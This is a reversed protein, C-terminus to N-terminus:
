VTETVVVSVFAFVADAVVVIVIEGSASVTEILPGVVPVVPVGIVNVAVPVPPVVGYVNAHVAVPPDGAEPVPALKVAVYLVAPGNETDTVTVSPFAFVAVALWEIVMDEVPRVTSKVDAGPLGFAPCDTVKVAVTVPPDPDYEKLQFKPSLVAVPDPM